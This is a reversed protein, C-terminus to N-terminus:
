CTVCNEPLRGFTGVTESGLTEAVCVTVGGNVMLVGILTTGVSGDSAEKVRRWDTRRFWGDALAEMVRAIRHQMLEIEINLILQCSTMRSSVDYLPASPRSREDSNM